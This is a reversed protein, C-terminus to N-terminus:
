SYLFEASVVYAALTNAIRMVRDPDGGRFSISFSDAERRSSRTVDVSIRKALIAVKDEMFMDQNEPESFLNFRKIINELNTRSMVRQSITNIRSNIDSSVISRVYSQPVRQPQIFILTSASYTKPLTIALYSGVVMAICFPIILIWRRRLIIAIIQDVKITNATEAM